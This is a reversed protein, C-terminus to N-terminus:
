ACCRTPPRGLMSATDFTNLIRKHHCVQIGKQGCEVDLDVVMQCAGLGAPTPSRRSKGVGLQDSECHGVIISSMQDVPARVLHGARTNGPCSARVQRSSSPMTDRNSPRSSIDADSRALEDAHELLQLLLTSRNWDHDRATHGVSLLQGASRWQLARNDDFCQGAQDKLCVEVAVRLAKAVQACDEVVLM